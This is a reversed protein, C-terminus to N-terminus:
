NKSTLLFCVARKWLTETASSMAKNNSEGQLTRFKIWASIPTVVVAALLLLLDVSLLVAQTVALSIAVIEDAFVASTWSWATKGVGIENQQFAASILFWGQRIFAEWVRLFLDTGRYM